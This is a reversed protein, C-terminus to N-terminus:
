NLPIRLIRSVFETLHKEGQDCLEVWKAELRLIFDKFFDIGNDPIRSYPLTSYHDIAKWYQAGNAKRLQSLTWTIRIKGGEPIKVTLTEQHLHGEIMATTTGAFLSKKENSIMM